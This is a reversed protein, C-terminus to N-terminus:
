TPMRVLALSQLAELGSTWAEEPLLDGLIRGIEELTNSGTCLELILSAAGNLQHVLGRRVDSVLYGGEGETITLGPERHPGIPAISNRQWHAPIIDDIEVEAGVEPNVWNSPCIVDRSGSLYAPWWSFTSNSIIHADAFRMSTFDSMEQQHPRADPHREVVWVDLQGSFQDHCWDFDDSFVFFRTGPNRARLEDMARVFYHVPCLPFVPSLSLYDGRRVHVATVHHDRDISGFREAEEIALASPQFIERIFDDCEAFESLDQLYAQRGDITPETGFDDTFYSDPVSFYPAYSWRPFVAGSRDGARHARGIMGAIQFLQNGLRGNQGLLRYSQRVCRTYADGSTPPRDFEFRWSCRLTTAKRRRTM